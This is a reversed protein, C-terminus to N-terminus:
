PRSPRPTITVRHVRLGLRRPDASEGQERPVFTTDTTVAITGGARELASSRATARIVFPGRANVRGLEVDGARLTITRAPQFFWGGADGSVEVDVDRGAAHILLEARDSTWRWLRQEIPNYELEHWGPGFAFVVRGADQVDFQEIAVPPGGSALVRLTGFGAGGGLLGAPLSLTRTFFGPAIDAALLPRGDFTVELHAGPQGPQGLNRGGIMLTAPGERRRVRAEIGGLSPGRGRSASRGAIEPTLAWGEGLYWGPDHLEYWIVDNPRTNGALSQAKFPWAFRGMERVTAPDILALDTRAPHGLFWVPAAGGADWYRLVEWVEDRPAWPLRSWRPKRGELMWGFARRTDMQIRQHMALVPAEQRQHAEEVLRTVLQSAPSDEEHYDLSAPWVMAVGSVAIALVLPLALRGALTAAGIAALWAIAPVLPLAYRTTVTEHFVIHFLAYPLFAILGAVLARPMRWAARVAGVGALLLVVTALTPSLWPWVFTHLFGFVLRRPTPNRYLMDVGSFDEGGQSALVALYGRPGGTAALLPLVWALAGAAFALATLALDRRSIARWRVAVVTLLLPMTLWM